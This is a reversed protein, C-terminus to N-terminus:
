VVSKRDIVISGAEDILTMSAGEGFQESDLNEQFYNKDVAIALVSMLSNGYMSKMGRVLYLDDTNYLDYLLLSANKDANVKEYIESRYFTELFTNDRYIASNDADRNPNIVEDEQIFVISEIDSTAFMTQKLIKFLNNERDEKLEQMSSYDSENKSVVSRITTDSILYTSTKNLEDMKSHITDCIQNALATNGKEVEELISKRSNSFM